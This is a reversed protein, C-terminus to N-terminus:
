LKSARDTDCIKCCSIIDVFKDTLVVKVCLTEFHPNYPLLDAGVAFDIYDCAKVHIGLLLCFSLLCFSITPRDFYSM